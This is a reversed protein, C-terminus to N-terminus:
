HITAIKAIRDIQPSLNRLIKNKLAVLITLDSKSIRSAIIKLANDPAGKAGFYHLAQIVLGMPSTAGAIKKPSAHVFYINMGCITAVHSKGDTLYTLKSPVQTTMGLANAANVPDLVFVQGMRRAYADIIDKIDPSLMGLLSSKRPNDYLGYGLRRITGQKALRHLVVDINGKEGLDAFDHACFVWGASKLFILDQITKSISM